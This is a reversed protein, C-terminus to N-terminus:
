YPGVLGQFGILSNQALDHAKPHDRAVFDSDHYFACCIDQGSLQRKETYKWPMFPRGAAAWLPPPNVLKLKCTATSVFLITLYDSNLSLTSIINLPHM